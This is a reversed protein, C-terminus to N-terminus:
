FKHEKRENKYVTFFFLLFKKIIIETYMCHNYIKAKHKNIQNITISINIRTIINTQLKKLYNKFFIHMISANSAYISIRNFIKIFFDDAHKNLLTYIYSLFICIDFNIFVSNFDSESDNSESKSKSKSLVSNIVLNSFDPEAESYFMLLNLRYAKTSKSCIM